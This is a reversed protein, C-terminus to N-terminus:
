VHVWVKRALTNQVTSRSVGFESALAQQTWEGTEWQWRLERVERETLKAEGHAEGRIHTGDRLKDAENEARSKWSLHRPNFCRRNHCPGHSAQMGEPRPGHFRECVLSHVYRLTGGVWLQGYGNRVSFPWILCDDTDAAVESDLYDQPASM